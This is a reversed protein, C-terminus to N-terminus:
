KEEGGNTFHDFLRAKCYVTCFNVSHDSQVAGLRRLHNDYWYKDCQEHIHCSKCDKPMAPRSEVIPKGSIKAAIKAAHRSLLDLKRSLEDVDEFLELEREMM